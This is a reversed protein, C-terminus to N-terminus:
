AQLDDCTGPAHDLLIFLALNLIQTFPLTWRYIIIRLASELWYVMYTPPVDVILWKSLLSKEDLHYPTVFHPKTIEYQLHNRTEALSHPTVFSNKHDWIVITWLSVIRQFLFTKKGLWSIVEMHHQHKNINIYMKLIVVYDVYWELWYIIYYSIM